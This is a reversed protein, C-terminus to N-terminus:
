FLIGDKYCVDIARLLSPLHINRSSENTFKPWLKALCHKFFSPDLHDYFSVVDFSVFEETELLPNNRLNEQVNRAVQWIAETRLGSNQIPLLLSIIIKGLPASPSQKYDVAIRVL